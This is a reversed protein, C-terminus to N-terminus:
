RDFRQPPMPRTSTATSTANWENRDRRMELARPSACQRKFFERTKPGVDGTTSTAIGNKMQFMMMARATEKGFFGTSSANFLTPDTALMKQLEKVDEGRSGLGLNRAIPACMSRNMDGKKMYSTSTGMQNMNRDDRADKRGQDEGIRRGSEETNRLDEPIAPEADERLSTGPTRLARVSDQLVKIQGRLAEIKMQLDTNTDASAAFPLLSLACILGVVLGKYKQM